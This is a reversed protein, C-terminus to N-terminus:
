GRKIIENAKRTFDDRLRNLRELVARNYFDPGPDFIWRVKYLLPSVSASKKAASKKAAKKTAMQGGQLFPKRNASVLLRQAARYSERSFARISAIYVALYSDVLTKTLSEVTRQQSQFGGALDL